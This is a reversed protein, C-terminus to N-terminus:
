DVLDDFISHISKIAVRKGTDKVIAEYVNGYSGSGIIKFNTPSSDDNILQYKYSVEDEISWADGYSQTTEKVVKSSTFKKETVHEIRVGKKKAQREM